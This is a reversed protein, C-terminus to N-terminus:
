FTKDFSVIFNRGPMNQGSGHVRYNQDTVNEVTLSLNTQHDIRWGVRLDGVVYGPTGGPPIRRTDSIDRLSLRDADAAARIVVEGWVPIDPSEYRLGVQGTLPMIRSPYDDIIMGGATLSQAEGDMYTVNGFLTLEPFIKWAAGFEIGQMFGDESNIKNFVGGPGLATPVRLIQDEILYHFFALQATFREYEAKTGIEFMLYHEPDLGLAPREVGGSFDSDRTLDSLNPARFGQSVGGFVNWHRQPDVFWVFRASGSANFWSEELSGPTGGIDVSGAYARAYTIRAGIIIDLSGTVAIRDQVNFGLLDYSADDGVPGQIPDRTNFSSVWDRYYDIGVTIHGVATDATANAFFGLTNVEFGDFSTSFDSRIRHRVEDQRQWSLSAHVEELFGDLETAHLQIYTLQREQDLERLIDTGVSTGRYPVANVTQETRPVNNQRMNQHAFVLRTSPQFFYEGKFDGYWETYGTDPQTIGSGIELDGFTRYTGGAVMGFRNGVAASVEGRVATSNEATSYRIIGRGAVHVGGVEIDSDYAYPNVTIANVTGGIADSGYLVSSPGKVVEVRELSYGDVTNWYQNPGPRFVSNNLRIGDIMFLNRFSTFGRIYPSGHGVATEQIMVGPMDRLSQPVTRYQRDLMQRQDVLEMSYPVTFPDAATGTATITVDQLQTSGAPTVASEDTASTSTAGASQKEPADALIPAALSAALMMVGTSIVKSPAQYQM